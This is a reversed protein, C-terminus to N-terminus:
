RRQSAGRLRELVELAVGLKRQYDATLEFLEELKEPETEAFSPSLEAQSLNEIGELSEHAGEFFVLLSNFDRPKKRVGLHKRLVDLVVGLNDKYDIILKFLQVTRASNSSTFLHLFKNDPLDLMGEISKNATEFSMLLSGFNENRRQRTKLGYSERVGKVIFKVKGTSSKSQSTMTAFRIQDAVPLGILLKATSFPLRKEEPTEPGLLKLVTADLTLAKLHDTAWQPSKKGFIQAIQADTRGMEHLRGVCKMTELLSLEIAHCNAIIAKEFQDLPTTVERIIVQFVQIGAIQVARWRREGSILEFICGNADPGPLRKVIAPQQQGQELLAKAFERLDNENFDTRPQGNMPRVLKPLVGLIQGVVVEGQHEVFTTVEQRREPLAALATDAATATLATKPMEMVRGCTITMRYAHVGEVVLEFQGAAGNKRELIKGRDLAAPVPRLDYFLAWREEEAWLKLKLVAKREENPVAGAYLHTPDGDSSILEWGAFTLNTIDDPEGGSISRGKINLVAHETPKSEAMIGGTNTQKLTEPQSM